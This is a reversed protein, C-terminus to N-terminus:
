GQDHVADKGDRGRKVMLRWATSSEPKESGAPDRTAIFSSGSYTVIDSKEYVEGSKYVGREVPIDLKVTRREIRDGIKMTVTLTRGEIAIDFDTVSGGPAGDKGDRPQRIKELTLDLRVQARREFDLEWKAAIVELVPLLDEATIKPHPAIQSVTLRIEERMSETTPANEMQKQLSAFQSTVESLARAINGRIGALIRRGLERGSLKDVVTPTM